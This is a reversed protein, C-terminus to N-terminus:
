RELISWAMRPVFPADFSIGLVGDITTTNAQITGPTSLFAIQASGSQATVCAPFDNVVVFTNGNAPISTTTTGCVTGAPTNMTVTVSTALNSRNSMEIFASNTGGTFWWPSYLSTEYIVIRHSVARAESNNVRLVFEGSTTPIVAIADIDASAINSFPERSEISIDGPALTTCTTDSFLALSVAGGGESLDEFPTWALMVYSRGAQLRTAYFRSSTAPISVNDTSGVLIAERNACTDNVALSPTATVSLGAFLLAAMAPRNALKM